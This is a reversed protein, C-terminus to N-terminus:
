LRWVPQGNWDLLTAQKVACLRLMRGLAPTDLAGRRTCVLAHFWRKRRRVALIEWAGSAHVTLARAGVCQGRLQYICEHVGEDPGSDSNM